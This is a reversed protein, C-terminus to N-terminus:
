LTCAVLTGGKNLRHIKLVAGVLGARYNMIKLGMGNVTKPDAGFGIGNDRVYFISHHGDAMVGIVIKSPKAHKVANNLAERTIYYLQTATNNEQIDLPGVYEFVCAIGYLQETSTALKQLATKLGDVDVEVPHLGNILLRVQDRADNILSALELASAALPSSSTKLKTHFTQALMATGTLQQALGDHLGQGMARQEDTMRDAITKELRKRETIEQQLRM